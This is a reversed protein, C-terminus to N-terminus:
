GDQILNIEVLIDEVESSLIKEEAPFYSKGLLLEEYACDGFPFYEDHYPGKDFPRRRSNRVNLLEELLQPSDEAHLFAPYRNLIYHPRKEQNLRYAEMGWSEWLEAGAEDQFLLAMMKMNLLPILNLIGVKWKWAPLLYSQREFTLAEANLCYQEYLSLQGEKGAGRLYFRIEDGRVAPTRAKQLKELLAINKEKLTGM